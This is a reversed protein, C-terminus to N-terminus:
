KVNYQGKLLTIKVHLIPRFPFDTQEVVIFLIELQLFKKETKEKLKGSLFVKGKNTM